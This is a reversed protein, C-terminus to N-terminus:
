AAKIPTVRVTTSPEGTKTAERVIAEMQDMPCNRRMLAQQLLERDISERGKSTVVEVKCNESVTESTGRGLVTFMIKQKLESYKEEIEKKTAKLSEHLVVDDRIGLPDPYSEPVPIPQGLPQGVGLPMTSPPPTPFAWGPQASSPVSSPVDVEVRGTAPNFKGGTRAEKEQITEVPFPLASQVAKGKRKRTKAPTAAPAPAAKVPKSKTKKAM